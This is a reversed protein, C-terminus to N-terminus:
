IKCIKQSSMSFDKTSLNRVAGIRKLIWIPHPHKKPTEAATISAVDEAESSILEMAMM